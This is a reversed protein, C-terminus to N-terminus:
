RELPAWGRREFLAALDAILARLPAEERGAGPLPGDVPLAVPFPAPAPKTGRVLRRGAALWRTAGPLGELPGGATSLPALYLARRVLPGLRSPSAAAGGAGAGAAALPPQGTAHAVAGIVDGWRFGAM